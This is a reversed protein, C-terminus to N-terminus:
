ASRVFPILAVAAAIMSAAMRVTNWNTWTVLYDAWEATGEPTSADASILSQNMPLNYTTTALFAGFIYITCAAALFFWGNSRMLISAGLGAVALAIAVWFGGFFFPNRIAGNIANMAAIGDAHPLLAFANMVTASYAFFFGAMLAFWLACAINLYTM